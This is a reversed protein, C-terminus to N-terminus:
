RFRANKLASSCSCAKRALPLARVAEILAQGLRPAILKSVRAVEAPTLKEQLGAAMNSVYCVKAYCMELARALVAEPVRTVGFIDCGLRRFMEIETPTEATRDL